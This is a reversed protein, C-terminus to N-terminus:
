NRCTLVFRLVVTAMFQVRDNIFISYIRLTVQKFIYFPSESSFVFIKMEQKPTICHFTHSFSPERVPRKILNWKNRITLYNFSPTEVIYAVHHWVLQPLDDDILLPYNNPFLLRPRSTSELHCKSPSLSSFWPVNLGPLRNDLQPEFWMDGSYLNLPNITCWNAQHIQINRALLLCVNHPTELRDTQRLGSYRVFEPHGREVM